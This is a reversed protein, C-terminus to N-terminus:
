STSPSPAPSTPTAGPVPQGHHRGNGPRNYPNVRPGGDRNGRDYVMSPHGRDGHAFAAVAVAAVATIGAGLVCAVLAIAVVGLM